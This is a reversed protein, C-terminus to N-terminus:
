DSEIKGVKDEEDLGGTIRQKEETNGRREVERATGTKFRFSWRNLCIAELPFLALTHVCTQTSSPM